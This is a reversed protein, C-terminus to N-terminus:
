LIAADLVNEAQAAVGINGNQGGEFAARDTEDVRAVLLDGRMRGVTIRAHAFLRRDYEAVQSRAQGVRGGADGVRRQVGDRDHDDGAVHGAVEEAFVRVLLDVQVG